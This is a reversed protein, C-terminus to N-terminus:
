YLQEFLASGVQTAPTRYSHLHHATKQKADKLPLLFSRTWTELDASGRVFVPMAVGRRARWGIPPSSAGGRQDLKRKEDPLSVKPKREGGLATVDGCSLRQCVFVASTSSLFYYYYYYYYYIYLGRLMKVSFWFM